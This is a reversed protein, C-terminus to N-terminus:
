FKDYDGHAGIWMWVFTNPDRFKGVARYHAGIRVSWLDGSIPKFQLSPHGPNALWLRYNKDALARIPSPLGIYLSWFRRSGISKM